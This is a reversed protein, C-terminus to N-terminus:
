PGNIKLNKKLINGKNTVKKNFNKYSRQFFEMQHVNIKLNKKLIIGKNKVIRKFNKFSRQILEM